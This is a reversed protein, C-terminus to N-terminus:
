MAGSFPGIETGKFMLYGKNGKKKAVYSTLPTEIGTTEILIMVLNTEKYRNAIL